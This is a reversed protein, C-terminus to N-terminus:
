PPSTDPTDRYTVRLLDILQTAYQCAEENSVELGLEKKFLERLQNLQENSFTAM